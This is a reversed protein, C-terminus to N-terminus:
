CVSCILFICADPSMRPACFIMRFSSPVSNPPAAAADAVAPSFNEVVNPFKLSAMPVARSGTSSWTSDTPVTTTPQSIFLRPGATPRSPSKREGTMSVTFSNM